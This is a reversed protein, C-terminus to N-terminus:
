ALGRTPDIVDALGPALVLVEPRDLPRLENALCHSGNVAYIPLHAEDFLGDVYSQQMLMSVFSHSLLFGRRAPSGEFLTCFMLRAATRRGIPNLAKPHTIRQCDREVM